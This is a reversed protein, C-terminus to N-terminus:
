GGHSADSLMHRRPESAFWVALGIGCLLIVLIIPVGYFLGPFMGVDPFRAALNAGFGAIAALVVVSALRGWRRQRRLIATVIGAALVALVAGGTALTPFAYSQPDSAIRPPPKYHCCGEGSEPTGRRHWVGRVDRHLIGDRGNAVFVVHGEPLVHLVVSRASLHEAPDGLKPYAAALADYEAGGVEWATSYTAGGDTSVEVRLATIAVRYCLTATCDRTRPGSQVEDEATVFSTMAQGSDAVLWRETQGRRETRVVVTGPEAGDVVATVEHIREADVRRMGSTVSSMAWCTLALVALVVLIGAQKRVEVLQCGFLM